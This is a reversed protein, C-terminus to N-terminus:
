TRTGIIYNCVVEYRQKEDQGLNYPDQLARGFFLKTGGVTLETDINANSQDTHLLNLINEAKGIAQELSVNRVIIQYGRQHLPGEMSPELGATQHIVVINNYTQGREDPFRNVFIDTGVTGISQSELYDAIENILM